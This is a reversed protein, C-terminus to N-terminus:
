RTVRVTQSAEIVAPPPQWSDNFNRPVIELWCFLQAGAALPIDLSNGRSDYITEYCSVLNTSTFVRWQQDWRLPEATKWELHAVGNTLRLTLVNTLAATSTLALMSTILVVSKM